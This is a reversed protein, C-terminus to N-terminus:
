QPAFSGGFSGLVADLVLFTSLLLLLQKTRGARLEQIEDHQRKDRHLEGM